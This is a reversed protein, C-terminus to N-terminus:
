RLGPFDADTIWVPGIAALAAQEARLQRYHAGVWGCALSCLLMAALATRLRFQLYRRM